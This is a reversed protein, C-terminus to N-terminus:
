APPAPAKAQKLRKFIWVGAPAWLLCTGTVCVGALLAAARRGTLTTHRAVLQVAEGTLLASITIAISLGIDRLWVNLGIRHTGLASVIYKLLEATALGIIAGQFDGLYFGIPIAVLLGVVKAGVGAAVWNPLGVAMLAEGNISELMQMWVVVALYQVIWGAGEYRKDYLLNIFAPGGSLMIATTFAGMTMIPMRIRHFASTLASGKGHIKSFAPFAISTGIKSIVNFAVMAIMLGINYVGFKDLPIMKAFTLRDAQGALFTLVTSLFVWRGFHFLAKRCEADWAFRHRRRGLLIHSMILNILAGAVTGLVLSWVSRFAFALIALITLSCSQNVLELVTVKGVQLHRNALPVATSNFGAIAATLGVVPLMTLLRPEGYILSVPWAIIAACASLAFGRMVQITWATNLFIPEDGRKNQVISPIIGVDSFMALGQMFVNILAMLGFAEPFLLRTLILNSGMRLAQSIGYGSMIWLSGRMALSKLSKGPPTPPTAEYALTGDQPM